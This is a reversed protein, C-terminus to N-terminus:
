LAREVRKLLDRLNDEKRAEAVVILEELLEWAVRALFFASPDWVYLGEKDDLDFWYWGRSFFLGNLDVSKAPM